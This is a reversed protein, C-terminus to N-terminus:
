SGGTTTELSPEVRAGSTAPPQPRDGSSRYRLLVGYVDEPGADLLEYARPADAFPVEHSVMQAVPLSRLLALTTLTRRTRDWRAQLQPPVRGVQSSVLHQRGFHFEPSLTLTVPRSGYYSVVVTTGEPGVVGLAQQLAAPAGSAEFAIDAGTGTLEHVVRAAEDPGLVVEFGLDRARARRAASPDVVVVTHATRRALLACFQGVIGFGFVVVHDGIRVPVDLLANLAVDALQTFAAVVPDTGTPLEVVLRPDHRITFVDQHPHRCFVQAGPALPVGEGAEIVEGVVQYAYKVPFAFSGECTELGLPIDPSVDGRYVQMETGPSVLSVTAAVQIEGPGPRRVPQRRLVATRPADFWLATAEDLTHRPVM